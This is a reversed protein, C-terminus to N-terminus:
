TSHSVIISGNISQLLRQINQFMFILANLCFIYICVSVCIWQSLHEDTTSLPAYYSRFVYMLAHSSYHLHQFVWQLMYIHEFHLMMSSVYILANFCIIYVNLSLDVSVCVYANNVISCQRTIYINLCM